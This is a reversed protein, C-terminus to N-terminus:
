PGVGIVGQELLQALVRFTEFRDMGSVDLLDSYTLTGDIRSLLFGARHDLKHWVIEDPSIKVTPIAELDALLEEYQHLLAERNRELLSQAEKRAPDIALIRQCM